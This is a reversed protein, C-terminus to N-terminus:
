KKSEQKPSEIDIRVPAKAPEPLRKPANPAVFRPESIMKKAPIETTDENNKNYLIRGPFVCCCSFAILYLFAIGLLRPTIAFPMNEAHVCLENGFVYLTSTKARSKYRINIEEINFQEVSVDFLIPLIETQMKINGSTPNPMKSAFEDVKTNIYDIYNGSKQSVTMDKKIKDTAISLIKEFYYSDKNEICEQWNIIPFEIFKGHIKTGTSEIIMKEPICGNYNTFKNVHSLKKEVIRFIDKIFGYGICMDCTILGNGCHCNIEGRSCTTCPALQNDASRKYGHGDCWM